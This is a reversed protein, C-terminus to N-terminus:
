KTLFFGGVYYTKDNCKHSAIKKMIKGERLEYVTITEYDLVAVKDNWAELQLVEGPHQASWKIEGTKLDRGEILSGYGETQIDTYCIWLIDGAVNLNFADSRTLKETASKGNKINYEVLGDRSPFLIEDEYSCLFGPAEEEDLEMLIKMKKEPVLFEAFSYRDDPDGVMGYVNGKHLIVEYVIIGEPLKYEEKKETDLDVVTVFSETNLNSAVAVKGEEFSYGTVNTRDYAVEKTDGTKKDLLVVKGYDSKGVEGEPLLVVDKPTETMNRFGGLQAGSFDYGTEAVEKFDKDLWKVKTKNGSETTYIVGWCAEETSGCGCLLVATIMALVILCGLMRNQKVMKKNDNM